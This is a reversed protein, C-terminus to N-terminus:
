ITSTTFLPGACCGTVVECDMQAGDCTGVVEGGRLCICGDGDCETTLDIGPSVFVSCSCFDPGIGCGSPGAIEGTCDLYEELTPGCIAGPGFGCMTNTEGLSCSLWQQHLEGCDGAARANCQDVCESGGGNCDQLSDCAPECLSPMVGTSSSANNTVSSTTPGSSTSSTTTTGGSGGQGDADIIATGGCAWLLTLLTSSVVISPLFRGEMSASM